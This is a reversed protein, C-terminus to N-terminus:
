KNWVAQNILDPPMRFDGRPSLSLPGLKPSNPMNERKFQSTLFRSIFVRLWKGVEADEYVGEFAINALFRTKAPKDGWRVMHTLYFDHLELPGIKEETSQSIGGKGDNTLEPSIPRNVVRTLLDAAEAFEPDKAAELVLPKVLTKPLSGNIHYHSQQDANYTCFGLAIETLDGTGLVMANNKNGYNFQNNTRIRAQVNAYTV